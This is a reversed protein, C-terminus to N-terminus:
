IEQGGMEGDSEDDEEDEEGAAAEAGTARDDAEGRAAPAGVGPPDDGPLNTGARASCGDRRTAPAAGAPAARAAAAPRLRWRRRPRGGPRRARRRRRRRRRGGGGGAGGRRRGRRRRRAAPPRAAPPLPPPADRQRFLHEGAARRPLLHPPSPLLHPPSPLLHPPPRPPSQCHRGTVQLVVGQGDTVDVGVHDDHQIINREIRPATASSPTPPTLVPSHALRALSPPHHHHLRVPPPPWLLRRRQTGSSNTASSADAAQLPSALPHAPPIRTHPHAHSAGQGLRTGNCRTRVGLRWERPRRPLPQRAREPRRQRARGGGAARQRVRRQGRDLSRLLLPPIPISHASSSLASHALPVSPGPIPCTAAATATAPRVPPTPRRSSSAPKWGTTCSTATSARAAQLPLLPVHSLQRRAAPAHATSRRGTSGRGTAYRPPLARHGPRHRSSRHTLLSPTRRAGLGLRTGDYGLQFLRRQPHRRRRRPRLRRRRPLSPSLSPHSAPATFRPADNGTRAVVALTGPGHNRYVLNASLTATTGVQLPFSSPLPSRARHSPTLPSLSRRRRHDGGGRGRRGRVPRPPPPQALARHARGVVGVRRRARQQAGSLPYFRPSLLPTLATPSRTHTHSAGQWTRVRGSHAGRERRARGGLARM